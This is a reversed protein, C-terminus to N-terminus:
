TFFPVPFMRAILIGLLGFLLLAVSVLGAVVGALRFLIRGRVVAIVAMVFGIAGVGIFFEMALWLHAPFVQRNFPTLAVAIWAAVGALAILLSLFAPARGQTAASSTAM